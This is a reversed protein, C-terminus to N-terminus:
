GSAAREQVLDTVFNTVRRRQADLDFMELRAPVCSKRREVEAHTISGILDALASVYRDDWPASGPVRWLWGGDLDYALPIQGTVVPLRAALYESLKTTYRFAGVGDVSQPLSAVDMASLYSPVVDRSVRGTFIVRGHGGATMDRLHDLGDGDGVILVRVDARDVEALARVLEM